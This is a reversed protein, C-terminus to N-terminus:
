DSPHNFCFSFSSICLYSIKYKAQMISFIFSSLNTPCCGLIFVIKESKKETFQFVSRHLMKAEFLVNSKAWPFVSLFLM